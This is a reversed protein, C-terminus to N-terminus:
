VVGAQLAFYIDELTHDRPNVKMISAGNTVLYRVIDPIVDEKEVQVSLSDNEVSAQIVGRHDKILESLDESPTKYFTIDVWTVPWLKQSLEKLSGIALIKGNNM